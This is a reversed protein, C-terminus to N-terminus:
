RNAFQNPKSINSAGDESEYSQFVQTAEFSVNKTGIKHEVLGLCTFGYKAVCEKEDLCPFDRDVEGDEETIYLGYNTVPQLSFDGHITSFNFTQISTNFKHTIKFM